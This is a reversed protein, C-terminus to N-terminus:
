NKGLYFEKFNSELGFFFYELIFILFNFFLILKRIFRIFSFSNGVIEVINNNFFDLVEVFFIWLFDDVKLFRIINKFLNLYYIGFKQLYFISIVLLENFFLDIIFVQQFNVFIDLIFQFRIGYFGLFEIDKIGIFYDVLFLIINFNGIVEFFKWFEQELYLRGFELLRLISFINEYNCIVFIM